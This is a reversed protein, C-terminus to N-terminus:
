VRKFGNIEYTIGSSYEKDKKRNEDDFAAKQNYYLRKTEEDGLTFTTEFTMKAIDSAIRLTPSVDNWSTFDFEEKGRYTTVKEEYTETYENGDSDRKTRTRKENHYCDCWFGIYPKVTKIDNVYKIIDTTSQKANLYKWTNSYCFANTIYMAYTLPLAGWVFWPLAPTLSILGLILSVILLTTYFWKFFFKVGDTDTNDTTGMDVNPKLTSGNMGILEQNNDINWDTGKIYIGTTTEGENQTANGPENVKIEMEMKNEIGEAM